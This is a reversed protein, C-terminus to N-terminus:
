QVHVWVTYAHLGVAELVLYGVLGASGARDLANETRGAVGRSWSQSGGGALPVPALQM